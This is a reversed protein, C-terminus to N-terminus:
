TRRLVAAPELRVIRWTAFAVATSAVLASFLLAGTLLTPMEATLTTLQVFFLRTLGITFVIGSGVGATILRAERGLVSALVGGPTAGIAMRIGFERTRQAVSQSIVAFIGSGALLLSLVAFAGLIGFVVTAGAANNGNPGNRQWDDSVVAPTVPRVSIPTRAAEAMAKLLPHPDAATRVVVRANTPSTPSPLYIDGSVLGARAIGGYDIADPVVGIVIVSYSSRDTIRLRLGIVNGDRAFQRAATESLVAVGRGGRAEAPDFTRGRLIRLGVTEFFGDAIPMTSLHASRGDDTHAEVPMDGGFRFGGTVGLASSSVRVVGPITALRPVVAPVAAGPIEMSVLRDAPLMLRMGRVEGLLTFAMAAWVILGVSTGIEGFVILDRAGYGALHIRFRPPVGNLSAAVDRKSASLAPATGFLLCAVASSTLAIPLLSVDAHIRGAMGPLGGLVSDLARLLAVALGVGLSGSVLALVANELLLLRVIRGRTGGLARRVSLEQDRAIGRAMLLCAVNVCAILLVLVAPGLVLALGTVARRGTDEEIPIARWIWAGRGKSLATLEADATQWTAGPRLRAFVAVSSPVKISAHRLPIWVDAGIGVFSYAFEAPMVGVVARDTGDLRVVADTLHGHPFQAHWFTQSVIAVPADANVDVSTFLRGEAPPVGMAQFFGPSAYGVTVIRDNPVTGVTADDSAYPGIASFSSAKSLAVDFDNLAVMSREIGLSPSSSYVRALRGIDPVGPLDPVMVQVLAYLATTAGIGVSLTLVAVMAGGRWRVLSRAAFRFEAFM